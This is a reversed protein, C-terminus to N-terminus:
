TWANMMERIRVVHRQEEAKLLLFIAKSEAFKAQRELEDYFLVSDKEAQLAVNLVDIVTKLESVKEKAKITEPFVHYEALVTLYRSVEPNFLYEESHAAKTENVKNFINLFAEEHNVEENMLWFFLAKQEETAAQEYAQRYFERGRREIEVALRLGELDNYLNPM